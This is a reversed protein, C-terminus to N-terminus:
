IVEKMKYQLMVDPFMYKNSIKGVDGVPFPNNFSPVSLILVFGIFLFGASSLTSSKLIHLQLFFSTPFTCSCFPEAEMYQPMHIHYQTCSHVKLRNLLHNHHNNSKENTTASTTTTMTSETSTVTTDSSTTIPTVTASTSVLSESTLTTMNTSESTLTTMNTTPTRSNSAGSTTESSFSTSVGSTSDGFEAREQDDMLEAGMVAHKIFTIASTNPETNEWNLVSYNSYFCSFMGNEQFVISFATCEPTKACVIRCMCTSSEDTAQDYLVSDTLKREIFHQYVRGPVVTKCNVLLILMLITWIM